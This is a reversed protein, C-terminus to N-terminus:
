VAGGSKVLERGGSLSMATILGAQKMQEQQAQCIQKHMFAKFMLNRYLQVRPKGPAQIFNIRAM